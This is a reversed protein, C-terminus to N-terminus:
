GSSYTKLKSEIKKFIFNNKADWILWSTTMFTLSWVKRPRKVMFLRNSDSHVLLPGSATGIAGWWELCKLWVQRVARCRLIVKNLRRWSTEVNKTPITSMMWKFEM